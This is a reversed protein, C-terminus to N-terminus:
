GQTAAGSFEAVRLQAFKEAAALQGANLLGQVQWYPAQDRIQPPVVPSELWAFVQACGAANGLAAEVLGLGIASRARWVSDLGLWDSDVKGYDKDEEAIGLVKRFVERAAAFDDAAPGRDPRALGLYYSSWGAFYSARGAVSQVRGLEKEKEERAEGEDLKDLEALLTDVKENLESQHSQLQPTIRVLLELAQDCAATQAADAIWQGILSEARNYDAQLLMVELSTTNAEPYRERLRAIGAMLREYRAPDDASDMLQLSYLDALRKVSQTRAAGAPLDPLTQELHLTQLDVLGLRGLFRDLQAAEDARAAGCPAIALAAALAIASALAVPQAHNSTAAPFM